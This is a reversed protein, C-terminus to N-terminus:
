HGHYNRLDFFSLRSEVSVLPPSGLLTILQEELSGVKDGYAYRDIYLGEFGVAVLHRLMEPLPQAQVDRQWLDTPENFVAGYSWRLTRSHLYGRLLSYHASEPFTMYPLQFVMANPPLTKEIAAIFREDAYFSATVAAHHPTFIPSTQDYLGVFTVLAALGIAIWARRKAVCYKAFRDLLLSVALLAFFALFISIRNLARLQSSVLLAFLSGFGGITGFLVCALTLFSAVDLRYDSSEDRKAILKRGAYGVLFLFGAVGVIGTASSDNENVLPAAQYYSGKLAALPPIRHGSIPLLLQTVKFGYTEAEAAERQAVRARGFLLHPLLCSVVTLTIVLMLGIASLLPKLDRRTTAVALGLFGLLMCDFFAYYVGSAGAIICVSMAALARTSKWEFITRGGEGRRFLPPTESAVRFILLATLPVLYYAALLLHAEGRQFHYPLFTYLLAIPLASIRTIRLLRLAYLCCLTTAPFTLLYYANLVVGPSTTTLALLKLMACHFVDPQPYNYMVSGFPMGLKRNHFIWPNDILWKAATAETLEDGIAYSFPVRFDAHSLDHFYWTLACSTLLAAICLLVDARHTYLRALVSTKQPHSDLPIIM